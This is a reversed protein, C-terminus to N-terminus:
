RNRADKNGKSDAELHTANCFWSLASCWHNVRIHHNLAGIRRV